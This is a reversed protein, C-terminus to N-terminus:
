GAQIRIPSRVGYLNGAADLASISAPWNFLITETGSADLKFTTGCHHAVPDGPNTCNYLGGASTSGYLNGATDRILGSRPFAGDPGTNAGQFSYLATVKGASDLKFVIGCGVQVLGTSDSVYCNQLGAYPNTGYLNGGADIVLDPNLGFGNMWRGGWGWGSQTFTVLNTVVGATDLKLITTGLVGYLNGAADRVLNGNAQGNLLVTYTQAQASRVTILLLVLVSALLACRQPNSIARQAVVKMSNAM